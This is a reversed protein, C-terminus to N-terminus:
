LLLCHPSLASRPQLSLCPLLHSVDFAWQSPSEEPAQCKSAHPLLSFSNTKVWFGMEVNGCFVFLHPYLWLPYAHEPLCIGPSLLALLNAKAEPLSVWLNRHGSNSVQVRMLSSEEDGLDPGAHGPNRAQPRSGGAPGWPGPLGPCSGPHQM